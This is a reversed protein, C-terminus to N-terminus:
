RAEPNPGSYTAGRARRGVHVTGPLARECGGTSAAGTLHEKTANTPFSPPLCTDKARSNGVKEVHFPRHRYKSTHQWDDAQAGGGWLAGYAASLTSHARPAEIPGTHVGSGDASPGRGACASLSPPPLACRRSRAAASAPAPSTRNDRRASRRTHSSRVCWMGRM